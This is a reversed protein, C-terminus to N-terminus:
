TDASLVKSLIEFRVLRQAPETSAGTANTLYTTADNFMGEEQGQLFATLDEQEKLLTVQNMFGDYASAAEERPLLKESPTLAIASWLTYFNNYTKAHASICGNVDELQRLFDKTEGVAESFVDVDFEDPADELDDFEAYTTDILEQDFGDIRSYIHVMLLESIFQVDKMRKARTTTVVGVSKWYPSESESEALTVLWGDYKAHRLEQRDLRRSNRTLREFVQNLVTGEVVRIFEVPLVYDWFKRRADEALHRWKKGAFQADGFDSALTIRNNVFRIITELRQKGDVVEYIHRGDDGITKHLFISPSPYGRFITDLFFRRDKPSWVSRRQFPPDLDLQDNRNLDLFWSVDQTSVRRDM